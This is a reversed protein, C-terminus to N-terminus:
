LYAENWLLVQQRLWPVDMSNFNNKHGLFNIKLFNIQVMHSGLATKKTISDSTCIKLLKDVTLRQVNSNVVPLM